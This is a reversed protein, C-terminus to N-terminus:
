DELGYKKKIEEWSILKVKGDEVEKMVHKAYKIDAYDQIYEEILERVIYGKSRHEEKSITELVDYLKDPVQFSFVRSM